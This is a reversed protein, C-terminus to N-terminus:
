ESAIPMFRIEIRRNLARGDRTGNDAISKKSGLGTARIRKTDIGRQSLAEAVMDARAQSLSLNLAESGRNDTHGDVVVHSMPCDVAILAISDILPMSEAVLTASSANFRLTNKVLLYRVNTNCHANLKETQDDATATTAALTLAAVLAVALRM